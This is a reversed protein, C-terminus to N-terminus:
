DRGLALLLLVAEVIRDRIIGISDSFKDRKAKLAKGGSGTEFAVKTRTAVGLSAKIIKQSHKITFAEQAMASGFPTLPVGIKKRPTAPRLVDHASVKSNMIKDLERNVEEIDRARGGHVNHIYAAPMSTTKRWIKKDQGPLPRYGLVWMVWEYMYIPGHNGDIPQLDFYKSNELNDVDPLLFTAMDIHFARAIKVADDLTTVVKGAELEKYHGTPIGAQKAFDDQSKPNPSAADSGPKWDTKVGSLSIFEMIAADRYKRLQLQEQHENDKKAAKSIVAVRPARKNKTLEANMREKAVANWHADAERQRLSLLKQHALSNVVSGGIYASDHEITM